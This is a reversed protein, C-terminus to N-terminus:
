YFRRFSHADILAQTSFQLNQPVYGVVCERHWYWHGILMLIALKTNVPVLSEDASFGATYTVRVDDILGRTLPWVQSYEPVLRAPKSNTDVRYRTPDLTVLNGGTDMYIISISGPQVPNKRLELKGIWGPFRDENQQWQANILTSWQLEQVHLMAAQLMLTILPDEDSTRVRLHQKVVDLSPATATPFTLQLLSSM